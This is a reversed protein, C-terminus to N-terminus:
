GRVVSFTPLPGPVSDGAAAWGGHNRKKVWYPSITVFLEPPALMAALVRNAPPSGIRRFRVEM